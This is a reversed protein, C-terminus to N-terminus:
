KSRSRGSRKRAASRSGKKLSADRWWPNGALSGVYFATIEHAAQREEDTRRNRFNEVEHHAIEVNSRLMARGKATLSIYTARRDSASRVRRVLSRSELQQVLRSGLAAVINLREALRGIPLRRESAGYIQIMAQYELSDLGHGRACEDIIRQVTRFVYRADAVVEMYRDFGYRRIQGDIDSWSVPAVAPVKKERKM